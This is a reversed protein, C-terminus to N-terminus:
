KSTSSCGANSSLPAMSFGKKVQERRSVSRQSDLARHLYDAYVSALWARDSRVASFFPNDSIQSLISGTNSAGVQKAVLQQSPTTNSDMSSARVSSFEPFLSALLASAAPYTCSCCSNSFNRGSFCSGTQIWVCTQYTLSSVYLLILSTRSDDDNNYTSPTRSEDVIRVLPGNGSGFKLHFINISLFSMIVSNM